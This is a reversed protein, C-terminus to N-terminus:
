KISGPLVSIDLSRPLLYVMASFRIGGIGVLRTGQTLFLVCFIKIDKIMRKRGSVATTENWFKSEYILYRGIDCRGM